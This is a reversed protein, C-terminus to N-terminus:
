SNQGAAVADVAEAKGTELIVIELINLAAGLHLTREAVGGLAEKRVVFEVGVAVEVCGALAEEALLFPHFQVRLQGYFYGGLLQGVVLKLVDLLM